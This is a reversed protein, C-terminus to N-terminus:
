SGFRRICGNPLSLVKTYFEVSRDMDRVTMGVSVVADIKVLAPPVEKALKKEAADCGVLPALVLLGTLLALSYRRTM